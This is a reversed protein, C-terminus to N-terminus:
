DLHFTHVSPNGPNHQISFKPRIINRPNNERVAPNDQSMHSFFHVAGLINRWILDAQCLQTLQLFQETKIEIEVDEGFYYPKTLHQASMVIFVLQTM